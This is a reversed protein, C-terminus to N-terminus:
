FFFEKREREGREGCQTGQKQGTAMSLIGKKIGPMGMCKASVGDLLYEVDLDRVKPDILYWPTYFDGILDQILCGVDVLSIYKEQTFFDASKPYQARIILFREIMYLRM